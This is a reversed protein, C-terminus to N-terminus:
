GAHYTACIMKCKQTGQMFVGNIGNVEDAWIVDEMAKAVTYSHTLDDDQKQGKGKINSSTIYDGNSIDGNSDCVNLKGEGLANVGIYKMNHLVTLDAGVPMGALADSLVMNNNFVGFVRKDNLTSTVEVEGITQSLGNSFLIQKMAVLDGKKATSTELIFADHGGTFPGYNVSNLGDAYFDYTAGNSMFGVSYKSEAWFSQYDTVSLVGRSGDTFIDWNPVGSGRAHLATYTDSVGAPQTQTFDGYAGNIAVGNLTAGTITGTATIDQAFLDTVNIQLATLSNLTVLGGDITTSGASNTNTFDVVGNFQALGSAVDISFPVNSRTGDTLAFTDAQILFASGSASNDVATWGTIRGNIDLAVQAIAGVDGGLAYTALKTSINAANAGFATALNTTLQSLAWEGEAAVVSTSAVSTHMASLPNNLEDEVIPIISSNTSDVRDNLAIVDTEVTGIRFLVEDGIQTNLSLISEYADGYELGLTNIKIITVYGSKKSSISNDQVKIRTGM